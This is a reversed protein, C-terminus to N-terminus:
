SSPPELRLVGAATGTGRHKIPREMHYLTAPRLSIFSYCRERYDSLTFAEDFDCQLATIKRSLPDYSAQWAVTRPLGPMMSLNDAMRMTRWVTRRIRPVLSIPAIKYLGDDDERREDNM